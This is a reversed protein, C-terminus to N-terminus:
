NRPALHVRHGRTNEDDVVVGGVALQEFSPEARFIEVDQRCRAAGFRDRDTFLGKAVDNQEVDHHGLHITELDASAELAVNRGRMQGDHHDRREVTWGVAHAAELGAGVIEDGLRDVFHLQDSAYAREGAELDHDVFQAIAGVGRDREAHDRRERRRTRFVASAPPEEEDVVALTRGLAEQLRQRRMVYDRDLRIRLLRHELRGLVIDVDDDDAEAEGVVIRQAEAALNACDFARSVQGNEDDRVELIARAIRRPSSSPILSQSLRGTSRM